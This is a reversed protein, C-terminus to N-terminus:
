LAFCCLAVVAADSGHSSIRLYTLKCRKDIDLFEVCGTGGFGGFLADVLITRTGAEIFFGENAIYTIRSETQAATSLPLAFAILYISSRLYSHM